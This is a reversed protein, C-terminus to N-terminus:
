RAPPTPRTRSWTPWTRACTRRPVCDLFEPTSQLHVVDAGLRRFAAPLYKGVSYGDVIVGVPAAGRHDASAATSAAPM